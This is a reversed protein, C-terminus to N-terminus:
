VHAIWVLPLTAAAAPMLAVFRAKVTFQTPTLAYCVATVAEAGQDQLNYATVLRPTTNLGHNVVLANSMVAGGPYTVTAAGLTPLSNPPLLIAANPQWDLELKQQLARLPLDRLSIAKSELAIIRELLTIDYNSVAM